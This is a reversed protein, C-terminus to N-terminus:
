LAALTEGLALAARARERHAERGAREVAPFGIVPVRAALTLLGQQRARHGPLAALWAPRFLHAAFAPGREVPQAADSAGGLSLMGALPLREAGTRLAPRIVHKGRTAPSPPERREGATWRAVDEGLRITTRGPLVDIRDGIALATLDDSVLPAGLDLLGAMLSSKGAGGAGAILVAKGGIEIACAHLPLIGRWALLHAAVTGYFASPLAGRWDPGPAYDVRQGAYTDFLVEREWPFRTGDAYVQGRRVKARPERSAPAPARAVRIDSEGEDFRAPQFHVLPIDSLWRLGFAAALYAPAETM